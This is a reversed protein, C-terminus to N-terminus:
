KIGKEAFERGAASPEGEVAVMHRVKTIMGRIIPTDNHTVISDLRNFGLSKLVKLHNKNNGAKSRVLQVRIKKANDNSPM